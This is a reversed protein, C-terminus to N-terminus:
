VDVSEAAGLSLYSTIGAAIQTATEYSSDVTSDGRLPIIDPSGFLLGQKLLLVPRYIERSTYNGSDAGGSVERREVQVGRIQSVSGEASQKRLLGRRIFSYSDREKDFMYTARVPTILIRVAFILGPVLFLLLPWYINDAVMPRFIGASFILFFAAFIVALVFGDSPRRDEIRLVGGDRHVRVPFIRSM